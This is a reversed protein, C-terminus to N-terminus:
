KRAAAGGGGQLRGPHRDGLHGLVGTGGLDQAAPDLGQVRADVAADQGPAGVGGMLSVQRGLADVRDIHDHDVQVGELRRHRIRGHAPLGRNFVDVDAARRHHPRRGLVMGVHRHQGAGALVRGNQLQQRRLARSAEGGVQPALQGQCRKRVRGGVVRRDAAPDARAQRLLSELLGRRGCRQIQSQRGALAQAVAFVRVLAGGPVALGLGAPPAGALELALLEAVVVQDVQVRGEGGHALEPVVVPSGAAVAELAGRRHDLM